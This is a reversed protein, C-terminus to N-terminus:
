LGLVPVATLANDVTGNGLQGYYGAGWCSLRGEISVACTHDEGAEIAVADTLGIVSVPTSSNTTTGDGLQGQLGPDYDEDPEGNYGWCRASGTALVACSHHSGVAVAIANTVGIVSVPTWSDTTTGDGLQGYRNDGVCTVTGGPMVTCGHPRATQRGWCTTAGGALHACTHDLGASIGVADTIGSVLVPTSSSTTTGDGLQGLTNKGWCRVTGGALLACSHEFGASVAVADTLGAVPVPTLWPPRSGDLPAGNGLQGFNNAGWCQVTGGDLVGCTHHYGGSVAVAPGAPAPTTANSQNSRATEHGLANIAHVAFTYATGNELGTVTGARSSASFVVPAQAIGDRYPTVVYSTLSSANDGSPPEWSVTAKGNGAVTVGVRPSPDAVCGTLVLVGLVIVLM